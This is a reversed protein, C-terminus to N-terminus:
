GFFKKKRHTKRLISTPRLVKPEEYQDADDMTESCDKFLACKVGARVANLDFGSGKGPMPIEDKEDQVVQDLTKEGHLPM